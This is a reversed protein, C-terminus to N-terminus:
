IKSNTQKKFKNKYKMFKNTKQSIKKILCDLIKMKIEIIRLFTYMDRFNLFKSKKILDDLFTYM